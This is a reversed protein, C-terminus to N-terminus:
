ITISQDSLNDTILTYNLGDIILELLKVADQQATIFLENNQKIAQQADSILQAVARNHDETPENDLLRKLVGQKNSVEIGGTQSSNMITAPPINIQVTKNKHDIIIDKETLEFLNVGIDIRIMGRAILTQGWLLNSWTSGQDIEIETKQDLYATKTVIFYHDAIKNLVTLSTINEQAPKNLIGFKIVLILLALGLTAIGIAYLYSKLSKFM